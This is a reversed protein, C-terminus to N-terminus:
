PRPILLLPLILRWSLFHLSRTDLGPGRARLDFVISAASDTRPIQLLPLFSRWSLFHGSLTDFGPGRACWIPQAIHDPHGRGRLLTPLVDIQALFGSDRTRYRTRGCIKTEGEASELLATTVNSAFTHVRLVPEPTRLRGLFLTTLNVSPGSM